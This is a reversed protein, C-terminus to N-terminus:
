SHTVSKIQTDLFRLSAKLGEPPITHPYGQIIHKEVTFGLKTLTDFAQITYSPKVVEDDGGHCLLIPPKSQIRREIDAVATLAGSYALVAKPAIKREMGVHLAIMSGQSFGAIILNEPKVKYFELAQDIFNHLYPAISVTGTELERNSLDSIPFSQYGGFGTSTPANPALCVAHPLVQQFISSLGILDNGDSGYGHLIVMLYQPEGKNPFKIPFDANKFDIKQTM